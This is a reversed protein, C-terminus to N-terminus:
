GSRAVHVASGNAPFEFIKAASGGRALLEYWRRETGDPLPWGSSGPAFSLEGAPVDFTGDSVVAAGLDGARQEQALPGHLRV